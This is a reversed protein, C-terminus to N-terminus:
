GQWAKLMWLHAQLADHIGDLLNVTTRDGATEAAQLAVQLKGSISALDTVIRSVMEGGSPMGPDEEISSHELMHALTHLPAGDLGVIREAIEDIQDGVQTYIEEFKLHLQFFQEGKINWHYHRLKQYFVTFDAVLENLQEVM